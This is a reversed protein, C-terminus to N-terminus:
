YSAQRALVPKNLGSAILRKKYGNGINICNFYFVAQSLDGQFKYSTKYSGKPGRGVQVLFTTQSTYAIRKDNLTADKLQIVM